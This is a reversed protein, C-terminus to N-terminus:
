IVESITLTSGDKLDVNFYINLDSGNRATSFDSISNIEELRAVKEAIERKLEASIFSLPLLNDGRFKFYTMGFSTNKYVNYKNLETKLLLKLYMQIKESITQAEKPKGNEMEVVLRDGVNRIMFVKGLRQIQANEGNTKEIATEFNINPFM